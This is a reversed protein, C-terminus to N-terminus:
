TPGGPQQLATLYKLAAAGYHRSLDQHFEDKLAQLCERYTPNSRFRSIDLSPTHPLHITFAEPLVLLEYEQPPPPLRITMAPAPPRSCSQPTPHLRIQYLGLLPCLASSKLGVSPRSEQCHQRITCQSVSLERPGSISLDFSSAPLSGRVQADLEVIHAVKNWGFGVFRPDYRPCDRPVVVYPEYDAAWQM